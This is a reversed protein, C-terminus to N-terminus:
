ARMERIDQEHLTTFYKEDNGVLESDVADEFLSETITPDEFRIWGKNRYDSLTEIVRDFNSKPLDRVISIEFRNIKEIVKSLALPKAMLTPPNLLKNRTIASSKSLMRKFMELTIGKSFRSKVVYKEFDDPDLTAMEYLVSFSSPLKDMYLRFKEANRGIAKYKRFTSGKSDLNVSKCFYELDDDSLEKLKFKTYIEYVAEGMNLIGEIANKTSQQYRRVYEDAISKNSLVMATGMDIEM